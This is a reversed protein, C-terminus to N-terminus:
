QSASPQAYFADLQAVLAETQILRELAEPSIPWSRRLLYADRRLLHLRDILPDTEDRGKGAALQEALEKAMEEIQEVLGLARERVSEEPAAVGQPPQRAGEVIRKASIALEQALAAVEEQNWPRPKSYTTVSDGGAFVIVGTRVNGPGFKCFYSLIDRSVALKCEGSADSASGEIVVTRPATASQEQASAHVLTLCLGLGIVIFGSHLRLVNM